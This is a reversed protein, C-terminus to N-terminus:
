SATHAHPQGGFGEFLQCPNDRAIGLFTGIPGTRLKNAKEVIETFAVLLSLAKRRESLECAAFQVFEVGGVRHLTDHGGSEIKDALVIKVGLFKDLLEIFKQSTVSEPDDGDIVM